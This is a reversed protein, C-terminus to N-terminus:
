APELGSLMQDGDSRDGAGDDLTEGAGITCREARGHLTRASIPALIGLGKGLYLSGKGFELTLAQAVGLDFELLPLPILGCLTPRAVIIGFRSFCRQSVGPSILCRRSAM